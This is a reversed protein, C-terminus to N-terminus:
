KQYHVIVTKESPSVIVVANRGLAFYSGPSATITNVQKQVDLPIDPCDDYECLKSGIPFVPHVAPTQQWKWYDKHGTRAEGLHEMSSLYNIGEHAIRRSALDPLDFLLLGAESGGPGFGMLETAKFRITTVDLVAPVLSLAHRYAYRKWAVFPWAVIIALFLVIPVAVIKRGLITGIQMKVEFLSTDSQPRVRGTASSRYCSAWRCFESIRVQSRLRAIASM